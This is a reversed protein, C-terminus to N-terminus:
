EQQGYRPLVVTFTTGTPGVVPDANSTVRIDGRHMKVIGYTVALGLGTGKGIQKTTFFPEFIKNMNEPRIGVGTDTVRVELNAPDGGCRITLTGGSPMAAYANSVLNTLVQAVQDRDVDATGNATDREIRLSVNAPPPLARTTREILTNLDTPQLVVKNQRAFHLLGAVIKKCRDAQEVVMALDERLRGNGSKQCEELLLHSYMLVVGLPNNVEHAIGAALQGMSALKESQMLAEQASALQENSVALEKVTKRLQDITYPLCMETEALGKHIAMAHERCTDYGCAGCNLEDEPGFKGLRNMIETMAAPSPMAIRQDNAAFTRTLDLDAFRQMDAQWQSDSLRGLRDRAHRAIRSRREFQPAPTTMGPGMICGNCCLVEFLRADLTGAAFEEIAEVFHIRGEAAIVQGALLDDTIKASQLLGRSVAFLAGTGAHPPDFDGPPASAPDVNRDRFMQRLEGFTLAGDVDGEVTGPSPADFLTGDFPGRGAEHKKAVCPGIFVIKLDPQYFRRLARGIAVMPSVIPALSDILQPFYREVYDIIAPCTTAIYRRGDSHALLRRYRDAVLDAGFAVEAVRAFGLARIMGVLRDTPIDAFEAPFSPAICAAVPLGSHLLATVREIGSAVQKAKQSCVRVCNGCCICREPMVEAQAAVIRIAKAPCERVCTYCVRCREKVTQIFAINAPEPM